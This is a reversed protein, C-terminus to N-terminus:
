ITCTFSIYIKLYLISHDSPPKQKRKVFINRKSDLSSVMKNKPDNNPIHVSTLETGKVLVAEAKLCCM